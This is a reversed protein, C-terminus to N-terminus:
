HWLFCLYFSCDCFPTLFLSIQLFRSGGAAEESQGNPRQLTQHAVTNWCRMEEKGMLELISGCFMWSSKFTRCSGDPLFVLIASIPLILAPSGIIRFSHRSFKKVHTQFPSANTMENQPIFDREHCVAPVGTASNKLSVNLVELNCLTTHPAKVEATTTICREHQRVSVLGQPQFVGAAQFSSLSAQLGDWTHRTVVCIQMLPDTIGFVHKLMYWGGIKKHLSHFYKEIYPTKICIHAYM